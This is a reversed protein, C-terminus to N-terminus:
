AAEQLSAYYQQRKVMPPLGGNASCIRRNQRKYVDLHTYSVPIYRLNRESDHTDSIIKQNNENGPYEATMHLQRKYVDIIVTIGIYRSIFLLM